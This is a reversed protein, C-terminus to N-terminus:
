YIKDELVKLHDNILKINNELDQFTDNKLEYVVGFDLDQFDKKDALFRRVVEDVDPDEERNLCRILRNKDSTKVYFITLEIDKRLLLQEIATPDFVGINLIGSRLADYGTGYFWDRFCAIEILEDNLLRDAFCEKDIFNYNIGDVEGQRIPRTTYRVIPHLMPNSELLKQFLTDKGSGSQGMIAIVKYM